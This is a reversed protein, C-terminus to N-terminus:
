YPEDDLRVVKLRHPALTAHTIGLEAAARALELSPLQYLMFTGAVYGNAQVFSRLADMLEAPTQARCRASLGDLGVGKLHRADAGPAVRLRAIVRLCLPRLSTVAEQMAASPAGEAGTVECIVGHEAFARAQRLLDVLTARGRRTQLSLNAVPLILTPPKRQAAIPRLRDLGRAITAFDIRELDIPALRQFEAATLAAFDPHRQVRAAIRYGIRRSTKLHVVPELSCSVAVRRGISTAFPSWRDLSAAPPTEPPAAGEHAGADELADPDLPQGFVGDETSRTVQHARIDGAARRDDAGADDNRRPM